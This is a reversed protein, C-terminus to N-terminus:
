NHFSGSYNKLRYFPTWTTNLLFDNKSQISKINNMNDKVENDSHM